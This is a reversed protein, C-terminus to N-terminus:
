FTLTRATVAVVNRTSNSALAGAVEKVASYSTTFPGGKRNAVKAFFGGVALAVVLPM